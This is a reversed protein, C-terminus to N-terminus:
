CVVRDGSGSVFSSTILLFTILHRYQLYNSVFSTILYLDFFHASVSGLCVALLFSTILTVSQICKMGKTSLYLNATHATYKFKLATWIWQRHSQCTFCLVPLQPAPRALLVYSRSSHPRNYARTGNRECQTNFQRIRSTM